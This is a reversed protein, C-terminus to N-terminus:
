RRKCEKCPCELRHKHKLAALAECDCNPWGLVTDYMKLINDYELGNQEAWQRCLRSRQDGSVTHGCESGINDSLFVLLALQDQNDLGHIERNYEREPTRSQPLADWRFKKFCAPCHIYSQDTSTPCVWREEKPLNKNVIEMLWLDSFGRPSQNTEVEIFVLCDKSKPAQCQLKYKM